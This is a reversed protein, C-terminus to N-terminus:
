NQMDSMSNVPHTIMAKLFEIFESKDNLCNLFAFNEGGNEKFTEKLEHGIEDITELCDTTFGPCCVAISKVGDKALKSVYLDTYPQLWVEKGFLSQFASVIKTQDFNLFKKLSETIEMSQCCYPDGKKIYSTPIGHNSVILYEPKFSLNALQSNIDDALVKIYRAKDFFPPTFRLTPIWRLTKLKDFVADCSSGYTASFYQPYMPMVILDTCGKELLKDIAAPVSPNGYCMGVEVEYAKPLIEKLKHAQKLSIDLLPSGNKTWIRKYLEASRRPRFPLIFLRLIFFWLVRNAEIVRPDSLFQKLYRRLAQPTPADPTGLQAIMVGIKKEKLKCLIQSCLPNNNECRCPQNEM